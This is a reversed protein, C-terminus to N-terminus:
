VHVTGPPTVLGPFTAETEVVVAPVYVTVIEADPHVLAGIDPVTVTFGTGVTVTFLGATQAPADAVTV